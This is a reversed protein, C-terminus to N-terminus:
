VLQYVNWFTVFLFGNQNNKAKYMILDDKSRCSCTLPDWKRESYTECHLQDRKYPSSDCTCSCSDNNFLHPEMCHASTVTLCQCGCEEHEELVVERIKEQM